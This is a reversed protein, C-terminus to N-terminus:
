RVIPIDIPMLAIEAMTVPYSLGFHNLVEPHVEGLCATLQNSLQLQACRGPIFTPHQFAQYTATIGLEALIADVVSRGQAYGTHPGIIAFAVHREERTKTDSTEDLAIVNGLEFFSQPAPKIHNKELAELLGTFLHCRVVNYDAAKSNLLLAYNAPTLRLKRFHNDHTTIMLSFVENFGLGMMIDRAQRTIKEEPREKGVTMTPVLKMPMRQYGYAIALDEFVDVEHKMDSRYAPYQVQLQPAQGSVSFRMRELDKMAEENSVEIGLWRRAADLNVSIKGPTLDPTQVTGEPTIITMAQVVGGYEVLSTVLTKISKQVDSKTIGTSDMFLQTTGVKVKTEDSNIIPPMSLVQNKADVLLPYARLPSLLHAYAIGKPHKQLVEAPTMLVDPCGLPHFKFDHPNVVTYRIPPTITTMDDLGIACLKRDRGIGWHLSEQLKMLSRLLVSDIPPMTVIACAIYPRFSDPQFLQPDVTVTVEPPQVMYNPLGTQIGLYGKIARALGGADFLDPRAPLLDLRIVQDRGMEVFPTASEHGCTTCRKPAEEDKWKDNVVGCQPCQYLIMEGVEDLDCGLNELLTSLEEPPINKGLLQNLQKVSVGIVPM